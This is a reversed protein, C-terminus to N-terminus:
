AFQLDTASALDLDKGLYRGPTKLPSSLRNLAKDQYMAIDAARFIEAPQDGAKFEQIGISGRIKIENGYWALSLNNLRSALTQIRALIEDKNVNALLLVFEDGGIRAATDMTRIEHALTQGILKLCADGALHSHTDNIVKFNDLDILVLVGGRSETRNVRDMEKAFAEEFGHRNKLGSVTDYTTQSELDKIRDQLEKVRYNAFDLEIQAHNILSVSTSLMRWLADKNVNRRAEDATIESIERQLTAIESEPTALSIPADEFAPTTVVANANAHRM